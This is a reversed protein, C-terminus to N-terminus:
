RLGLKSTCSPWAGWGQTAQVKEAVAIQQERTALDARPAYQTGGFGAWTQQTFQLGGYFGNGTNISWNGTAECQALADWTSGRSSAPAAPKEKTGVRLVAPAPERLVTANLEQREAEVGNVSKVALEVTREGPAGPNEVVTTGQDLNPDEVRHEPPAIPQNETRNETRDRTVHVELGEALPTHAPPVVSDAQELPAGHAALFEGVTPAAVRVEAPPAGGDAIRISKPSHVDLSTGELPLRHSRSASVYVDDAIEFQKMAEDVTLATTWVKQPRGDITLEVERARRLVVTDGDSVSAEAEPAVVDREGIEYGASDLVGRVDTAMTGLSVAQGDVDVTVTKHRVVAFLGGVILTALLAAVVVILLPSKTSNIKALPSM